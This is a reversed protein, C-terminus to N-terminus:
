CIGTSVVEAMEPHLNTLISQPSLSDMGMQAM